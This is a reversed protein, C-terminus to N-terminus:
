EVQKILYKEGEPWLPEPPTTLVRKPLIPFTSLDSLTGSPLYPSLGHHDNMQQCIHCFNNMPWCSSHYVSNCVSCKLSSGDLWNSCVTGSCRQFDM